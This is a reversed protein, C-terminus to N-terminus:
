CTQQKASNPPGAFFLFGLLFCSEYMHVPYHCCQANILISVSVSITALAMFENLGGKGIHQLLLAALVNFNKIGRRTSEKNSISDKALSVDIESLIETASGNQAWSYDRHPRRQRTQFYALGGGAVLVAAVVVL